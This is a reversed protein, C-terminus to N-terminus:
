QFYDQSFPDLFEDCGDRIWQMFLTELELLFLFVLSFLGQIKIRIQFRNSINVM